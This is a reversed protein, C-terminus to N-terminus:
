RTFHVEPPAAWSLGAYATSPTELGNGAGVAASAAFPRGGVTARADFDAGEEATLRSHHVWAGPAVALIAGAEGAREWLDWRADAMSEDGRLGGIERVREARLLLCFAGLYDVPEWRDGHRKGRRSVFRRLGRKRDTYGPKVRQPAPAVNSVPGLAAIEPHEDAIRVLRSITEDPVLVDPGLLLVLGDDHLQHSLHGPRSWVPIADSHQFSRFLRRIEAGPEAGPLLGAKIRCKGKALAEAGSSSAVPEPAAGNVVAGPVTSSSRGIERFIRGGEAAEHAVSLDPLPEAPQRAGKALKRFPYNEEYRASPDMGWKAKFKEFNARSLEDVDFGEAAFTRSGAHHIFVSKAIRTRWGAQLARLCYDDDECNGIGYREDFGGIAAIVERRMLWCFGVLRRAPESRGAWVRAHGAAFREMPELSRYPVDAVVQPGSARNTMPGVIGCDPFEDLVAFLGGLWGETVVTDNNLLVVHTGRALAMGQNNAAGYGRNERNLVLRVHDRRRVLDALYEPTDDTSGNDVVVIEHPEVTHKELSDLCSRTDELGNRTVVVISTLDTPAAPAAAVDPADAPGQPRNAAPAEWPRMAMESSLSRNGLADSVLDPGVRGFWRASLLKENAKVRSFREAGSKSEHHVLVSEPRYVLKWGRERIKLCLDIDECGNWFFEDFGGVERFLSRRVLLCAGTLVQYEKPFGADPFDADEGYYLHFAGLPNASQPTSLLAVGAHQITGDPFLLRSGAGGVSADVDLTELLPELWGPRAEIDNNLFLIAETSALAAGQNCAVSFGLNRENRVIKVNGELCDLLAPTGDTSGNDVLIVEYTGDPTNAAISELCKQTLEVKDFLPIVISVRPSGEPGDYNRVVTTGPRALPGPLPPAPPLASAVAPAPAAAAVVAAVVASAAPAAAPADEPASDKRARNLEARLRAVRADRERAAQRAIGIESHLAATWPLFLGSAVDFADRVRDLPEEVDSADGDAARAFTARAVEVWRHVPLAGPSGSAESGGSHHRLRPDLFGEVAAANEDFRLLRDIALERGVREMVGRWDSLLRDFAVFARPMGRSDREARLCHDLWLLQSKGAPIGDRRSLSAAVENPDRMTLVARAHVGSEALISKWLPLLRCLRPDKLGWLPSGGFDRAVIGLLEDRFPRATEGLQVAAPLPTPDDWATGLAALLRDHVLVIEEHEWYGAENDAHAPLLSEGLDVGLLNLVRTLASTGSRHMGLVLVATRASRDVTKPTTSAM